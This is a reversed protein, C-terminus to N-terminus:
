QESRRQEQTVDLRPPTADDAFPAQAGNVVFRRTITMALLPTM